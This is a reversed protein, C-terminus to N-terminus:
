KVKLGWDPHYPIMSCGCNIREGIPLSPDKPYKAKIEGKKGQITFYGDKNALQRHIAVHNERPHAKKSKIWMKGLEPVVESAQNFRENAAANYVTGLETYVIRRARSREDSILEGVNAITTELGQAGILSLGLQTNIKNVIEASLGAIKDTTVKQLNFLLSVDLSPLMIRVGSALLSAIILEQGTEWEKNIENKIINIAQSTFTQIIEKIQKEIETLFFNQYDTTGNLLVNKIQTEATSLLDMVMKLTDDQIKVGQRRVRNIEESPTPM